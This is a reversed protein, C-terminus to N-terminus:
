LDLKEEAYKLCRRVNDDELKLKEETSLEGFRPLPQKPRNARVLAMMDALHRGPLDPFTAWYKKTLCPIKLPDRTIMELNIRVNPQKGRLTAVVKPIDLFGTGLPVEALLFGDAYEAVAMDKLHTSFAYPAYANVVEMPDELLAISNGTDVCIGIQPSDLRKLIDLLETVRWDKHNEIALRLGSKEIVPKALVLSQWSQDAFRRFAEVSDFLEYRRGGIATRIVTIGCDKATQVEASFREVDTRDKPLSLSAELYMQHAEARERLKKVYAQDRAGIGTQVGGAGIDHCYDLFALPDDFRSEPHASRRYMYSHIVIGLRQRKPAASVISVCAAATITALMERRTCNM